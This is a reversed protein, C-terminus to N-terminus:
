GRKRFNWRTKCLFKGIHKTRHRQLFYKQAKNRRNHISNITWFAERKNKCKVHIHAENEEQKHLPSNIYFTCLYNYFISIRAVFGIGFKSLLLIIRHLLLLFLKSLILQWVLFTFWITKVHRWSRRPRTRRCTLVHLKIISQTIDKLGRMMLTRDM